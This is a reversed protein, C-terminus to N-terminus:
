KETYSAPMPINEDGPGPVWTSDDAIREEALHQKVLAQSNTVMNSLAQEAIVNVRNAHGRSAYLVEALHSQALRYNEIDFEQYVDYTRKGNLGLLGLIFKWTEDMGVEYSEEEQHKPWM